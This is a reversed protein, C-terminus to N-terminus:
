RCSGNLTVRNIQMQQWRLGRANLDALLQPASLTGRALPLYGANFQRQTTIMQIHLASQTLLQIKIGADVRCRM